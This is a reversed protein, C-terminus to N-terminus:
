READIGACIECWHRTRATPRFIKKHSCPQSRGPIRANKCYVRSGLTIFRYNVSRYCYHKYKSQIKRRYGMAQSIADAYKTAQEEIFNKTKLRNNQAHPGTLTPELEHAIVPDRTFRNVIYNMTYQAAQVFVAWDKQTDSTYALLVRQFRKVSSKAFPNGQSHHPLSHTKQM